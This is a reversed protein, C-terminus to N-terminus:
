ELECSDDQLKGKDDDRSARQREGTNSRTLIKYETGKKTQKRTKNSHMGWDRGLFSFMLSFIKLSQIDLFMKIKSKISSHLIAAYLIRPQFYM